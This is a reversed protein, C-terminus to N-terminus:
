ALRGTTGLPSLPSSPTEGRNRQAAVTVWRAWRYAGDDSAEGRQELHDDLDALKIRRAIAGAEGDAGAIRTTHSQVTEDDRRTRLALAALQTPTLGRRRLDDRTTDTKELIDHLLAVTRTDDPVAAAVREVHDTMPAGHKTTQGDHREHAITRAIAEDM